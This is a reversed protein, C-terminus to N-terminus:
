FYLCQRHCLIEADIRKDLYARVDSSLSDAMKRAEIEGAAAVLPRLRQRDMELATRDVGCRIAAIEYMDIVGMSEGMFVQFRHNAYAVYKDAGRNCEDAETFGMRAVRGIVAQLTTVQM